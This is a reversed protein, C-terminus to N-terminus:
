KKVADLKSTPPGDLPTGKKYVVKVYHDGEKTIKTTWGTAWSIV